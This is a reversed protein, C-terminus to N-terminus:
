KDANLIDAVGATTFGTSVLWPFGGTAVEKAISDSRLVSASVGVLPKLTARLAVGGGGLLVLSLGAACM